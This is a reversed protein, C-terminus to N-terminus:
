PERALGDELFRAFYEVVVDMEPSNVRIIADVLKRKDPENGHYLIGTLWLPVLYQSYINNAIAQRAQKSLQPPQKGSVLPLEANGKKDKSNAIFEHYRRRSKQGYYARLNEALSRSSDYANGMNIGDVDGLLDIRGAYLLLYSNLDVPAGTDIATWFAEIYHQLATALDGVWTVILERRPPPMPVEQLKSIDPDQQNSPDQKPSGEIGTLVHGIDILDRDAFLGHEGDYLKFRADGATGPPFLPSVNRYRYLVLDYYNKLADKPGGQYIKRVSALFELHSQSAPRTKELSDVLALFGDLDILEVVVAAAINKGGRFAIKPYLTLSRTFGGVGVRTSFRFKGDPQVNVERASSSSPGDAGPPTKAPASGTIGSLPWDKSDVTTDYNRRIGSTEIQIRGSLELDKADSQAYTAQNPRLHIPTRFFGEYQGNSGLTLTIEPVGSIKLKEPSLVPTLGAPTSEEERQTVEAEAGGTASKGSIRGTRGPRM